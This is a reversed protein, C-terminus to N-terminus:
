IAGGKREPIFLLARDIDIHQVKVSAAELLRLGCCISLMIIARDRVDIPKSPSLKAIAKTVQPETFYKLVKRHSRKVNHRLLEHENDELGYRGRFLWKLACLTINRYSPSLGDTMRNFRNLDLDIFKGSGNLRGEIVHARLTQKYSVLTKVKM